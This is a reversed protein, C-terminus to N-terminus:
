RKPNFYLYFYYLGCFKYIHGKTEKITARTITATFRKTSSLIVIASVVILELAPLLPLPLLLFEVQSSAFVATLIDRLVLTLIDRLAAM